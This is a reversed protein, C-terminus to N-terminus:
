VTRRALLRHTCLSSPSSLVLAASGFHGLFLEMTILLLLQPSNAVDDVTELPSSPCITLFQM